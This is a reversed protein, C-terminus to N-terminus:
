NFQPSTVQDTKISKDTSRKGWANVVVFKVAM